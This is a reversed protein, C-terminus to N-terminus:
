NGLKCTYTLVQAYQSSGRSTFMCFCFRHKRVGSSLLSGKGLLGQFGPCPRELRKQWGAGERWVKRTAQSRCAKSSCGKRQWTAPWGTSDLRRVQRQDSSLPLLDPCRCCRFPSSPSMCPQVVHGLLLLFSSCCHLAAAGGPGAALSVTSRTSASCRNCSPPAPATSGAPGCLEARCGSM